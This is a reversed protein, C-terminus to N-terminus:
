NGGASANDIISWLGFWLVFFFSDTFGSFGIILHWFSYDDQGIKCYHPYGQVPLQLPTWVLRSIFLSSSRDSTILMRCLVAAYLGLRHEEQVHYLMNEEKIKEPNDQCQEEMMFLCTTSRFPVIFQTPPPPPPWLNDFLHALDINKQLVEAFIGSKSIFGM